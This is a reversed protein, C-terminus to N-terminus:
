IRPLLSNMTKAFMSLSHFGDRLMKYRATQKKKFTAFKAGNKGHVTESMHSASM